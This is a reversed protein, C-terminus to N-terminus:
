RTTTRAEVKVITKNRITLLLTAGKELQTLTAPSGDIVVESTDPVYLQSEGEGPPGALRM